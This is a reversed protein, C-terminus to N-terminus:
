TRLRLWAFVEDDSAHQPLGVRPCSFVWQRSPAETWFSVDSFQMTAVRLSESRALVKTAIERESRNPRHHVLPLFGFVISTTPAVDGDYENVM